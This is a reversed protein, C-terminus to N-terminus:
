ASLQRPFLPSSGFHLGVRRHEPLGPKPNNLRLLNGYQTDNHAFVRRSAGFQKEQSDLWTMYREWEAHFSDLDLDKRISDSVSPLALVERAPYLWARVNKKAAIEWETSGEVTGIDVQHLEAMRAGIWSSVQPDRMEPPTLATSDFHEEVRGNEFTGYVKPGIHYQSSLVHLVHLERPRSIMNGSSPGYIRLLLIPPSPTSPYSVFFVANTLSGSVKQIKVSSASLEVATWHPVKINRLVTLLQGAFAETKYRRIILCTLM